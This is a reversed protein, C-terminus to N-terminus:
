STCKGNGGKTQTRIRSNGDVVINDTGKNFTLTRGITERQCQDVIKVPTGTIVYTENEPTYIMKMGKTERNQERLTVAEYAEARELEDGSEKLYLEIRAATMDGEPSSMHADGTYTLRRIADDYKMDKATAISHVKEKVKEKNVQELVTTSTVSGSASLNGVKNDITITDGKISTDGQFLRAAGTYTGKTTVGDYDLANGVVIVPLDQKLMSPMKVDNGTADSAPRLESRVNGAAKVKPGELTVDITTADIGIQENVIHPVLAGPESGSLALTGQDIDYVGDASLTAMKGEEFRVAHAFRARDISSLAAKFGVELTGGNVARNIEGGHERFQVSGAFLARTLGKGPEGVSDLSAARITRGPTRPDPPLTLQVAERGALAIPTSGDPALTVDIVNAAIQRGQTGTDGALQIVADGTILAHELSEGDAAYKLNMDRGTLTQLAGVPANSTVIRAHDQLEVTEIREEDPSLYIVAHDAEIVQGGRQIRVTRELRILKDRRAFAANGANVTSANAGAADPATRVTAQDLITLIDLAKDWTMGVGTATVRGRTFQVPGPARVTGDSDAYTAHETALHMGDSGALRVEGDLFITSDNKAVRGEKGTITFTRNGNKEDTVVTVGLLKSSGDAFILQKESKVRFGERSSKFRGLDGGITEMVAGTDKSVPASPPLVDSRRFQRAVFVAFLIAFVGIVARSRRQWRTM